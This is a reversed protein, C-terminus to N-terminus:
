VFSSSSSATFSYGCYADWCFPGPRSGQAVRAEVTADIDADSPGGCGVMMPVAIVFTLVLLIRSFNTM